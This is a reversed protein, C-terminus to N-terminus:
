AVTVATSPIANMPLSGSWAQTRSCSAPSRKGRGAAGVVKVSVILRLSGGHGGGFAELLEVDEGAVHEARAVLREGGDALYQVSVGGVRRAPQAGQDRWEHERLPGRPISRKPSSSSM